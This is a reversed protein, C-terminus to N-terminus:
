GAQGGGQDGVEPRERRGGGCPKGEADTLREDSPENMLGSETRRERKQDDDYEQHETPSRQRQTIVEEALERHDAVTPKRPIPCQEAEAEHDKQHQRFLGLPDVGQGDRHAHSDHQKRHHHQGSVCSLQRETLVGDGAKTREDGTSENRDEVNREEEAQHGSDDRGDREADHEAKGRNSRTADVQRNDREAQSRRHLQHEKTVPVVGSTDLSGLYSIRM